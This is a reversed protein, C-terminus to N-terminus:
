VLHFAESIPVLVLCFFQNKSFNSCFHYFMLFFIKFFYKNSIVTYINFSIISLLALCMIFFLNFVM